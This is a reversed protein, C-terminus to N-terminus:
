APRAVEFWVLKGTPEPVIGWRDALRDVIRLGRGAADTPLVPRAVPLTPDGDRISVRLSSPLLEVAVHVDGGVHHAANTVIESTCLLVEDVM